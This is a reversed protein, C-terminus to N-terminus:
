YILIQQDILALAVLSKTGCKSQCFDAAVTYIEKTTKVKKSANTTADNKNMNFLEFNEENKFGKAKMDRAKREALAKKIQGPECPVPIIEEGFLLQHDIRAQTRPTVVKSKHEDENPSSSDKTTSTYQSNQNQQSSDDFPNKDPYYYPPAYENKTFFFRNTEKVRLVKKM